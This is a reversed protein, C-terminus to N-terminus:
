ANALSLVHAYRSDHRRLNNVGFRGSQARDAVAASPRHLMAWEMTKLM